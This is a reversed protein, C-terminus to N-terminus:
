KTFRTTGHEKPDEDVHFERYCAACYLDGGCGRCRVAADENCIVCWPLEEPEPASSPSPVVEGVGLREELKQEALTQRLVADEMDSNDEMDEDKEEMGAASSAPKVRLRALQEGM